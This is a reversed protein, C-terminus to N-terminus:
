KKELGDSNVAKAFASLDEATIGSGSIQVLHKGAVILQLEGSANEDDFTLLAKRSGVKIIRGEGGLMAPNQIMMAIGQVVPSDTMISVTVSASDKNYARQVSTIGGFSTQELDDATWGGTAAPLFDALEGGRKQRTLSGAYEFSGAAEAYNGAKYLQLGEQVAEEVEDAGSPRPSFILGAAVIMLIPVVKRSM